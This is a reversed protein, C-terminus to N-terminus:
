QQKNINAMDKLIRVGQIIRNVYMDNIGTSDIYERKGTNREVVVVADELDNHLYRAINALVECVGDHELLLSLTSLIKNGDFTEAHFKSENLNLTFIANTKLGLLNEIAQESLGTENRVDSVVRRKEPYEGILYGVDCDFIKLLSYLHKLELNVKGNEINWYTVRDVDLLEAMYEQTYKKGMSKRTKKIVEATREKGEINFM